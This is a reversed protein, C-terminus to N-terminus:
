GTSECFEIISKPISLITKFRKSAWRHTYVFYGKKDKALTVGNAKPTKALFEKPKTVVTYSKKTEKKAIVKKVM